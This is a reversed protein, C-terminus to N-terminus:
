IHILSLSTDTNGSLEISNHVTLNGGGTTQLTSGTATSSQKGTADAFNQDNTANIFPKATDYGIVVDGTVQTQGTTTIVKFVELADKPAADNGFDGNNITFSQADAPNIVSIRVYEGGTNLDTKNM